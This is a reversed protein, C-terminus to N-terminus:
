RTNERFAPYIFVSKILRIIKIYDPIISKTNEILKKITIFCLFKQNAAAM